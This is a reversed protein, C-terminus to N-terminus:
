AVRELYLYFEQPSAESSSKVPVVVFLGVTDGLAPTASFVAFCCKDRM